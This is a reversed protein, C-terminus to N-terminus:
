GQQQEIMEMARKSVFLRGHFQQGWELATVNRYEMVRHDNYGPHLQKRLSARVTTDAGHRLFLATIPATDPGHGYNPWFNAQSVVTSFLPTHGGFGDAHVTARANVDAGRALLWEALALEDYDACMHLLTTGNLPTGHTANVEDHCDLEPPYIEEHTYRRNLVGPDRALHQELLDIRGRHLAMTPTDPYRVGHQEFLALIEHKAAPKRSDTELVVAVPATRRGAADVVKAGLELAIRTGTVNLTYATGGLVDDPVKPSGLLRHLLRVTSAHGQLAARDLAYMLDTAGMEHLMTIIRDRGVNAAYSLPYGWNSNRITAHEHLLHPNASIITRVGDLDDRWIADILDCAQKLRAWSPAEYSRALVLQADALQTDAPAVPDPHFAALDALADPDGRHWARLLDKAQHRLQELDPKVPLKRAPM